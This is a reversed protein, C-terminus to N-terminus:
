IDEGFLRYNFIRFEYSAKDGAIVATEAIFWGLAVAAAYAFALKWDELLFLIVGFFLFPPCYRALAQRDFGGDAKRVNFSRKLVYVDKEQRLLQWDKGALAAAGGERLRPALLSLEEIYARHMARYYLGMGWLLFLFVPFRMPGLTDIGFVSIM